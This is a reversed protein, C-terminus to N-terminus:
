AVVSAQLEAFAVEQVADPPLPESPQPPVSGFELPPSVMPGILATPVKV